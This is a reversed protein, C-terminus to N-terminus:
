AEDALRKNLEEVVAEAVKSANAPNNISITSKNYKSVLKILTSTSFNGYKECNHDKSDFEWNAEIHIAGTNTQKKKTSRPTGAKSANM